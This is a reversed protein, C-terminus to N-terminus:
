GREVEDGIHEVERLAPYNAGLGEHPVQWRFFVLGEKSNNVLTPL